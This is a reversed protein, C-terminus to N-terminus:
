PKRSKELIVTLTRAWTELATRKESDYSHRDYVATVGKEAHNLVKGIVLRSVGASAMSTAATRRLDHGRFDAMGISKPDINANIVVRELAVRSPAKADAFWYNARWGWMPKAKAM